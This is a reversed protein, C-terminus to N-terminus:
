TKRCFTAWSVDHVIQMGNSKKNNSSAYDSGLHLTPIKYLYYFQPTTMENLKSNKQTFVEEPANSMKFIPFFWEARSVAVTVLM